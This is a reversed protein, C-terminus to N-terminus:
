GVTNVLACRHDAGRKEATAAVVPDRIVRIENEKCKEKL